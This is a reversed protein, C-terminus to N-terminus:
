NKIIMEKQIRGLRDELLLLYTGRQLYQVEIHTIADSQYTKIKEGLLNFLIAKVIPETSQLTIQNSAPNPFLYTNQFEMDAVELVCEQSFNISHGAQTEIFIALDSNVDDICVEALSPLEQFNSSFTGGSIDINENTGNKINLYELLNSGELDVQRLAPNSSLDLYNLATSRLSLEMLATNNNLNISTLPNGNANLRVLSTNNWLILSSLQNSFVTLFQLSTCNSLDMSEIPSSTVQVILLEPNQSFDLSTLQIASLSVTRLLSNNELNLSSLPTELLVLDRLAINESFDATEIPNYSGEFGEINIFAELGELSTINGPSGSTGSVRLTQTFLEAETIQIEGDGNTDIVPTHNLLKSKFELDPITVNQAKLAFPMITLLVVFLIAKKNM